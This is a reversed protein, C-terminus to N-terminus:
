GRLEAALLAALRQPAPTVPAGQMSSSKMAEAAVEEVAQTALDLPPLGEADIFRRLTAFADPADGGLAAAIWRRV